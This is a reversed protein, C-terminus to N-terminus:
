VGGGLKPDAGGNDRKGGAPGTELSWPPRCSPPPSSSEGQLEEEGSAAQRTKWGGVPGEEVMEAGRHNGLLAVPLWHESCLLAPWLFRAFGPQWNFPGM